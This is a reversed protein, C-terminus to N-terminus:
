VEEVLEKRVKNLELDRIMSEKKTISSRRRGRKGSRVIDEGFKRKKARENTSSPWLSLAIARFWSIDGSAKIEMICPYVQIILNCLGYLPFFITTLLILLFPEDDGRSSFIFPIIFIVRTLLWALSHAFAKYLVARSNTTSRFRDNTRRTCSKFRKFIGGMGSIRNREESIAASNRLTISRRIANAGYQQMRHEHGSVDKYILGMIIVIGILVLITGPLNFSFRIWKAVKRGRGCPITFGELVTGEEVGWCHPPEYEVCYCVVGNSNYGEFFLPVSAISIPCLISIGHLIPEIKRSIYEDSKKFKVVILSFLCISLTYFAELGIASFSLFGDINCSIQNGRPHLSTYELESPLMLFSFTRCTTYMINSVCLGFLLRNYSTRMGIDSRFIINVLLCSACLSFISACTGAIVTGKKKRKIESFDRTLLLLPNDLISSTSNSMTFHASATGTWADQSDEAYHM